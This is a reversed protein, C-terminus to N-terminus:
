PVKPCAIGMGDVQDISTLGQNAMQAATVRTTGPPIMITNADVAGPMGTFDISLGTIRLPSSQGSTNTVLLAAGPSGRNIIARTTVDFNLTVSVAGGDGSTCSNIYTGPPSAM